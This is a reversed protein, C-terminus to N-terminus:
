LAGLCTNKDVCTVAARKGPVTEWSMVRVNVTM